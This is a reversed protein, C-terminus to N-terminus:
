DDNKEINKDLPKPAYNNIFDDFISCYSHSDTIKFYEILKKVKEM